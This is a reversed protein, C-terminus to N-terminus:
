STTFNHEVLAYGSFKDRATVKASVNKKGQKQAQARPVIFDTQRFVCHFLTAQHMFAEKFLQNVELAGTGEKNNNEM